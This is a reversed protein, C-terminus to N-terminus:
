CTERLKAGLVVRFTGSWSPLEDIRLAVRVGIGCEGCDFTYDGKSAFAWQLLSTESIPTDAACGPCRYRLTHGAPVLYGASERVVDRRELGAIRDPTPVERAEAKM